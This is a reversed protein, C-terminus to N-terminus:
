KILVRVAKASAGTADLVYGCPIAGSTAAAVLEGDLLGVAAGATLSAAAEIEWVGGTVGVFPADKAADNLAVVVLAGIAYPKGAKVGGTPAALEIQNGDQIYNTAM